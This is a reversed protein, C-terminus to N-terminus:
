IARGAGAWFPDRLKRKFIKGSDERPLEDRFEVRRPVQYSGIRARLFDRVEEESAAHGPRLEVVAHVSEGFEDDPIGFVACDAVAPHKHLEAEIAVPYINVGGSIIMDIKRDCLYLFGDEDFYGIDGPAFLGDREAARRKAEDRHYTFDSDGAASGAAVEGVEGAVLERGEEDLVRVQAGEMVRGVSGPHELWEEATLFTVPGVETSGYYEHVIPGWWDIIARKTDPSCPAAAHVVFRLSSIDYGRRVEEPLKLLREFMIPVLHLHTIREREILQLLAEADFRPCLHINAGVRYCFIAHTNPASHYIPGVIATVIKGPDDFYSLGFIVALVGLLREMDEPTYPPRKVGKPHGTTGSTYIISLATATPEQLRPPFGDRWSDWDVAGQPVAAGDVNLGYAAAIEPPTRVALVDVGPPIAGRVQELLDAHIVLARAESDELVYRAEEETYHWNVAVPYAGISGAGLAAEFFALDNRLYLAVGDGPGIGLSEFGAAVQAGRLALEETSLTRSGSTIRGM